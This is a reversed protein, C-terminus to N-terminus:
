GNPRDPEGVFDASALKNLFDPGFPPVAVGSSRLCEWALWYVDSNRGKSLVPGIGDKFQQEFNYENLPSVAYEATNGDYTVTLRM